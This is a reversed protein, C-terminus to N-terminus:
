GIYQMLVNIKMEILFSMRISDLSRLQHTFVFVFKNEECLVNEKTKKKVKYWIGGINHCFSQLYNLSFRMSFRYTSISYRRIWADSADRNWLRM